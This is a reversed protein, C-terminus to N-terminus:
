AGIRPFLAAISCVTSCFTSTLSRPAYFEADYEGEPIPGTYVTYASLKEALQGVSCYKRYDIPYGAANLLMACFQSCIYADKVPVLRGFPLTLVSLHNYLYRDRHDYMNRLKRQLRCYQKRSIPLKCIMVTSTQGRLHHRSLSERVFGGYFPTHYYRRAFSYMSSLTEDLSISVHNYTEGTFRRILRGIKYPTSSFVVYMYAQAM